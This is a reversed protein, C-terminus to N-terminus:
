VSIFADEAHTIYVFSNFIVVGIRGVSSDSTFTDKEIGSRDFAMSSRILSM